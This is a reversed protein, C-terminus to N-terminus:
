KFSWIEFIDLLYIIVIAFISLVLLNYFIDKQFINPLHKKIADLSIYIFYGLIGGMINIIVIDIIFSYYSLYLIGQSLLSSLLCFLLINRVKKFNLFYSIFYGLPIFILLNMLIYHNFDNSFLKYESILDFPIFSIMNKVVYLNVLSFLILLYALFLIKLLERYLKVEKKHSFFYFLKTLFIIGLFFSMSMWNNNLINLITENLM